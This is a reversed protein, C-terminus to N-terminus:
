ILKLDNVATFDNKVKCDPCELGIVGGGGFLVCKNGTFSLM